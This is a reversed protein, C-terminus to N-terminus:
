PLEMEIENAKLSYSSSLKLKIKNNNAGEIDTVIIGEKIKRVKNIYDQDKKNVDMIKSIDIVLKNIEIRDLGKSLDITVLWNDGDYKDVIILKKDNNAWLYKGDPPYFTHREIPNEVWASYSKKRVNDEPYIPIGVFDPGRNREKQDLRNETPAKSLDYILLVNSTAPPDAFRPYFKKYVIYRRTRSLLPGYCLISDKEKLNNLGFITVVDATNEIAGFVILLENAIEMYKIQTTLNSMEVLSEKKNILNSVKFRFKVNGGGVGIESKGIVSVIYEKNKVVQSRDFDSSFSETISLSFLIVTVFIMINNNRAVM